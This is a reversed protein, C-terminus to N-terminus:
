LYFRFNVVLNKQPDSNQKDEVDNPQEVDHIIELDGKQNLKQVSWGENLEIEYTEGAIKRGDIKTPFPFVYEGNKRRLIGASGLQDKGEISHFNGFNNGSQDVGKIQSYVIGEDGLVLTGNMDFSMSYSGTGDTSSVRLTPQNLLLRTYFEINRDHKIERATEEKNIIAYNNRSRAANMSDSDTPLSSGHYKEFIERFDYIANMDSRWKISLYDFMLGYAPGTAYPFPRTYTSASERGNIEEIAEVYKNEVSSLKIGTYNAMGELTEIQLEDRRSGKNHEQRVMRFKVADALYLKSRHTNNTNAADLANRLAQFELRLLVRADHNDLYNVPDSRYKRVKLQVVHFLEHIITSSEDGLYNVLVVAYRKGNYPQASNTFSLDNPEVKKYFLIDDDTQSDPLRELSYITNDFDLVLIDTSWIPVGWLKGADETLIAKAKLLESKVKERTRKPLTARNAKIKKILPDWRPDNRLSNLDVDSNIHDVNSYLHKEAALRLVGFGQDSDGALALICAGNYLQNKTASDRNVKYFAAFHKASSAFQKAEYDQMAIRYHDKPSEAAKANEDQALTAQNASCIAIAIFIIVIHIKTM